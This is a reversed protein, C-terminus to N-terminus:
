ISEKGKSKVKSLLYRLALMRVKKYVVKKFNNKRSLVKEEFSMNLNIENMIKKVSSVWDGKTPNECQAKFFKHVM